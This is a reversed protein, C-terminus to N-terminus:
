KLQYVFIIEFVYSDVTVATLLIRTCYLNIEIL